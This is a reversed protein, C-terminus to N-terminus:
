RSLNVLPVQVDSPEGAVALIGRGPRPNAVMEPTLRRLGVASGDLSGTPALLLGAGAVPFSRLMGLRSGLFDPPGSVVLLVRDRHALAAELPDYSTLRQLDDLLVLVNGDGRRSRRPSITRHWTAASRRTTGRPWRRAPAVADVNLVSWGARSALRAMAAMSTSRGSKPPGAVAFVPGDDVADIWAWEGTHTDIAVPLPSVLHDPPTLRDLPAQEWPQPWSM